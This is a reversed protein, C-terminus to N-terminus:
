WLEGLCCSNGAHDYWGWDNCLAIRLPHKARHRANLESLGHNHWAKASVHKLNVAWAPKALATTLLSSRDHHLATYPFCPCARQLSTQCCVPLVNTNGVSKNFAEKVFCVTINGTPLRCRAVRYGCHKRVFTVHFMARLLLASCVLLFSRFHVHYSALASLISPIGGWYANRLTQQGRTDLFSTCTVDANHQSSSKSSFHYLGWYAARSTEQNRIDLVQTCTVDTSHQQSSSQGSFHSSGGILLAYLKKAEHISSHPAHPM